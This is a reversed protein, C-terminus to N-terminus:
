QRNTDHKRVQHADMHLEEALAATNARLRSLSVGAKCWIQEKRVAFSGKVGLSLL